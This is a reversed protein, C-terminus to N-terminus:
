DLVEERLWDAELQNLALGLVGPYDTPYEVRRDAEDVTRASEFLDRVKDWGYREVLYGVFSGWQSYIQDRRELCDAGAEDQWPYIAPMEVVENLPLYDGSEVYSRVLDHISPVDQWADWYEGAAWTALGETLALDNPLGGPYAQGPIAHGLEHAIVGLLYEEPSNEDAFILIIPSDGQAALGRIPCTQTQPPLFGVMIKEDGLPDSGTDVREAVYDFLDEALVQWRDLDVPMYDDENIYYIFHETEAVPRHNPMYEDLLSRPPAPTPTPGDGPPTPSPLEIVRTPLLLPTPTPAIPTGAPTPTPSGTAPLDAPQTVEAGPLLGRALPVVAACAVSFLLLVVILLRTLTKM